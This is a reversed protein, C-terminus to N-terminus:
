RAVERGAAAVLESRLGPLLDDVRRVLEGSRAIEAFRALHDGIGRSGELPLELDHGLGLVEVARDAYASGALVVVRRRAGGLLDDAAAQFVLEGNTIAGPEDIRQEYPELERELRVFGYRGSLIRIRDPTTTALAAALAAAFYSGVYLAAAPAPRDLKKGGCPIVVVPLEAAREELELEEDLEAVAADVVAVLERAAREVDSWPRWAHDLPFREEAGNPRRVTATKESVRIVVGSPTGKSRDAHLELRDGAALPLAVLVAYYLRNKEAKLEELRAEDRRTKGPPTTEFPSTSRVYDDFADIAEIWDRAISAAPRTPTHTETM